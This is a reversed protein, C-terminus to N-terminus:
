AARRWWRGPQPRKRVPEAPAPEVRFWGIRGSLEPMGTSILVAYGLRTALWRGMRQVEEAGVHAAVVRVPKRPFYKLVENWVDAPLRPPVDLVVTREAEVAVARGLLWARDSIHEGFYMITANGVPFSAPEM